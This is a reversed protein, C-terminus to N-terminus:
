DNMLLVTITRDKDFDRQVTLVGQPETIGLLRKFTAEPFQYTVYSPGQRMVRKGALPAAADDTM